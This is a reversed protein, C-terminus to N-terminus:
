GCDSRQSLSTKLYQCVLAQAGFDAVTVPSKDGKELANLDVMESRVQACLAAAATVAAVAAQKEQQYSM